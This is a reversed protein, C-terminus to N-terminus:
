LLFPITVFLRSFPIMLVVRMEGAIMADDDDSHTNTTSDDCSERDDDEGRRTREWLEVVFKWVIAAESVAEAYRLCSTREKSLARRLMCAQM